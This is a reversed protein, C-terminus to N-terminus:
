VQLEDIHAFEDVHRISSTFKLYDPSGIKSDLSRFEPSERGNFSYFPDGKSDKTETFFSPSYSVNFKERVAVKNRQNEEVATKERAAAEVDNNLIAATVKSWVKAPSNLLQDKEPITCKPIILEKTTDLLLDGSVKKNHPRIFLQGNWKGYITLINKKDKKIHVHVVNYDGGIMPKAKFDIEASYGTEACKISPKGCIEMVLSGILIGRAYMDPWTGEYTENFKSLKIKMKGDGISGASNGLFKTRPYYWGELEFQKEKNEILVATIPPHHKVQEAFYTTRSGDPMEYNCRYVEGLVPNYPKKVGPPKVHFASLYWKTIAIMRKLPSDYEVIRAMLHCHSLFDTLKETLSRPELFDVPILISTM